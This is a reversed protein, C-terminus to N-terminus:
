KCESRCLYSGASKEKCRIYSGALLPIGVCVHGSAMCHGCELRISAHHRFWRHADFMDCRGDDVNRAHWRINSHKLDIDHIDNNGRLNLRMFQCCCCPLLHEKHLFLNIPFAEGPICKRPSCECHVTVSQFSNLRDPVICEPALYLKFFSPSATIM